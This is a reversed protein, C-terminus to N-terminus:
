LMDCSQANGFQNFSSIFLLHQYIKNFRRNCIKQPRNTKLSMCDKPKFHASEKKISFQSANTRPCACRGWQSVTRWSTLRDTNM